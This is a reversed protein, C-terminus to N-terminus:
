VTRSGIQDLCDLVVQYKLALSELICRVLAGPSNPLAQRTQRCVERIAAPMDSPNLFRPDDPDILSRLAPAAQALRILQPYSYKKGALDFSRKCQQLLWLGSINKLLRYTGDVGGENTLNFDL